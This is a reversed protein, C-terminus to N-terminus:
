IKSSQGPTSIVVGILKNKVIDIRSEDAFKLIDTIPHLRQCKQAIMFQRGGVKWEGAACGIVLFYVIWWFDAIAPRDASRIARFQM